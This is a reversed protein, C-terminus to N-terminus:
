LVWKNSRDYCYLFSLVGGPKPVSESDWAGAVPRLGVAFSDNTYILSYWSGFIQSSSFPGTLLNTFIQPSRHNLFIATINYFGELDVTRLM